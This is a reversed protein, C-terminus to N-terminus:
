LKWVYNNIESELITCSDEVYVSTNEKEMLKDVYSQLFLDRMKPELFVDDRIDNKIKIYLQSGFDLYVNENKSAFLAIWRRVMAKNRCWICNEKGKYCLCIILRHEDAVHCVYTYPTTIPKFQEVNECLKLKIKM